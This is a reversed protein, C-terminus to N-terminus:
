EEACITLKFSAGSPSELLVLDGGHLRALSKAISLGIGAGSVGETISDHIRFFPEFVRKSHAPAIGPGSDSVILTIVKGNRQAQIEAAGRPAYKEINSLLNGIIQKFGDPDIKAEGLDGFRTNLEIGKDAFSPKFSEVTETIVQELSVERAKLRLGGRSQRNFTLVNDILRTLRCSERVIIDIFSLAKESGPELEQALLESYMRINTLPTKLEHSVQGVFRVRDQAERLAEQQRSIFYAGVLFLSLSVLVVGAIIQFLASKSLAMTPSEFYQLRWTSFPEPLAIEAQPASKASLLDANGWQSIVTRNEGVLCVLPNEDMFEYSNTQSLAAIVDALFRAHNLEAGILKGDPRRMSVLFHTQNRFYFPFWTLDQRPLAAKSKTIEERPRTLEKDSFIGATRTFFEAESQSLGEARPNPMELEGDAKLLFLQVVYPSKRQVEGFSYEDAPTAALLSSLVKETKDLLPGLPNSFRRLREELLKARAISRM